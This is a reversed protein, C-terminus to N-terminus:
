HPRKGTLLEVPNIQITGFVKLPTRDNVPVVFEIKLRTGPIKGLKKSIGADIYGYGHTEKSKDNITDFTLPNDSEPDFSPIPGGTTFARVTTFGGAGGVFFNLSSRPDLLSLDAGIAKYQTNLSTKLQPKPQGVITNIINVAPDSLGNKMVVNEKGFEARVALRRNWFEYGVQLGYGPGFPRNQGVVDKDSAHAFDRSYFIGGYKVELFLPRTAKLFPHEKPADEQAVLASPLAYLALSLAITLRFLKMSAARWHPM